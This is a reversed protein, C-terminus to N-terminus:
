RYVWMRTYYDGTSGNQGISAEFIREAANFYIQLLSNSIDIPIQRGGSNYVFPMEKENPIELLGLPWALQFAINGTEGHVWQGGLDVWSEDLSM